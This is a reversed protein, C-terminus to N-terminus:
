ELRSRRERGLRTVEAGGLRVAAALGVSPARICPSCVMSRCEIAAVPHMAASPMANPTSNPEDAQSV